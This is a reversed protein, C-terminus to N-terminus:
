MDTLYLIKYKLDMKMYEVLCKDQNETYKSKKSM